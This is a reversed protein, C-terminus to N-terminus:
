VGCLIRAYVVPNITRMTGRHVSSGVNLWKIFIIGRDFEIRGHGTEIYTTSKDLKVKMVSKHFDGGGGFSYAIATDGSFRLYGQGGDLVTFPDARFVPIVLTTALWSGAIAIAVLLLPKPKM